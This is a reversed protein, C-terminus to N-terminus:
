HASERVRDAIEQRGEAEATAALYAAALALLEQDLGGPNMEKLRVELRKGYEAAKAADQPNGAATHRQYEMRLLLSSSAQEHMGRFLPDDFTLGTYATARSTTALRERAEKEDGLRLLVQGYLYSVQHSRPALGLARKLPERAAEYQRRRFEVQGLGFYGYAEQPRRAIFARYSKAAEEWRGSALHLDATLAYSPAYGPKLHRAVSVEELARDLDGLDKFLRALLYPWRYDNAARRKAEAYCVIAHQRFSYAYYIAGVQAYREPERTRAVGQTAAHFDLYAAREFEEPFPPEPLALAECARAFTPHDIAWRFRGEAEVVKTLEPLPPHPIPASSPADCGLGGGLTVIILLEPIRTTPRM